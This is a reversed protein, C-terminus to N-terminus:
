SSAKLQDYNLKGNERVPHWIHFFLGFLLSYIGFRLMMVPIQWIFLQIPRPSHDRGLLARLRRLYDRHSAFRQLMIGQQTSSAVSAIVFMLACYWSSTAPWPATKTSEWTFISGLMGSLLASQNNVCYHDSKIRMM